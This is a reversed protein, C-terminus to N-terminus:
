PNEIGTKLATLTVPGILGSALPDWHAASFLGDVRNEELRSPFNVNYFKKWLVEERDLWAIRNAMLNAVQIELTNQEQFFEKPIEVTFQPGILVAIERDNLIVRASQRVEGLDLLWASATRQPKDFSISYSAIGSFRSVGAGGFETWSVLDEITVPEPIEPGGKVFSVEWSGTIPEGTSSTTHYPYPRERVNSGYTALICSEGPDLQLYVQNGKMLAKGKSGNMPDFLIASETIPNLAIFDRVPQDGHNLIFYCYGEKHSRKVFALQHKEMEEPLVAAQELAKELINSILVKSRNTELVSEFASRRQDLQFLGPVDEPLHDQFIVQVGYGALSMLKELTPLPMYRCGPVLIAKYSRSYSRVGSGDATLDLIQRDSIFDFSYGNGLLWEGTKKAQSEGWEGRGLDFHILNESGRTSYLDYMPLYLLIDNAPDGSQMFSQVREIYQNLAAFHDWWSNRSNAHIAAYFLRGPWQDDPPSYCTGHYLVHNIGGLIYRELNSKIDSLTSTFHENLWTAAEASSLKKGTVNSASSALKISVLDTGETEPIENVAYLDLINAPSGHSQSRTLAKKDVAWNKWPQNFRELILDSITERYDCLVRQNKDEIDPGFLAPLESRLDYGRREEFEQFFLPTWDASGRADDVEYSDNFFARLYDVNRGSFASDFRSLYGTIAKESFHDITNGEGGPAAREVMKGHNGMFVAHLNWTGAPPSWQLIGKADVRETLDLIEGSDSYGMITILPLEHEFRLQDLALWQLNENSSVPYKIHSIDLENSPDILAPEKRSGTVKEGPVRYIGYLQYLQNRVARLVPEQLHRVPEQLAEGEKLVYSKHVMNRPANESDVWPGGFPWGTGTAMDVGMGLREAEALTHELMDMWQDSLYDIFSDEEEVVGYIPTIEVGGIGAKQLEQLEHTIGDKTVASGHWWWRTWPKAENSAEPLDIVAKRTSCAPNLLPILLLWLIKLTRNTQM